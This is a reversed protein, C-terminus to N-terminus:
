GARDVDWGQGTAAAMITEQTAENAGYIGAMRGERLVLIRDCCALLEPLESSVLLIGKGREAMEAILRRIDEKAGVDIGSTPDDLFVVDPDALLVRALLTKQQNGGSLRAVTVDPSPCKLALRRLLPNLLDAELQRRVFGGRSVRSLVALTGNERVSMGMMLGEIQRDEPLLGIGHRLADAPDRPAFRHDRVSLDGSRIPDVGCLAAGLASRGAGVLGAIGLVEGAHLEFSVDQLKTTTLRSAVLLVRGHGSRGSRASRDVSRGVMMRIIEDPDTASTDRTGITEGDRLVTIRDSIRFVEEMKHSVYVIGAGHAKLQAVLAFLRDAADESLASTPEDLLLLRVNMSLARAIVLLQKQGISLSTAVEGMGCPLGVQDLFPRCFGEIRRPSVMWREPFHLNGIVINEGVTLHPFLDLEQYVIAIGCRQADRPSAVSVRRGEVLIDGADARSVGAIVRALTSKGAGNEGVLAHIEGGRVDLCAGNLAQVGDYHKYAGQVSLLHPSLRPM